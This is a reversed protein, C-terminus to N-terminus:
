RVAFLLPIVFALILAISIVAILWQPFPGSREPAEYGAYGAAESLDFDPDDPGPEYEDDDDDGEDDDDDYYGEPADEQDEPNNWDPFDDPPDGGSLMSYPDSPDEKKHQFM